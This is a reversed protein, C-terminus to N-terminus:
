IFVLRKICIKIQVMSVVDLWGCRLQRSSHQLATVQAPIQRMVFPSNPRGRIWNTVLPSSGAKKLPTNPESVLHSPNSGVRNKPNPQVWRTNPQSPYTRGLKRNPISSSIFHSPHCTSVTLAILRPVRMDYPAGEEEEHACRARRRESAGDLHRESAAVARRSRGRRVRRWAARAGVM